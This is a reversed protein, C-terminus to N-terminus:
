YLDIIVHKSKNRVTELKIIKELCIFPTLINLVKIHNILAVLNKIWCYNNLSLAYHRACIFVLVFYNLIFRYEITFSRKLYYVSCVLLELAHVLQLLVSINQLIKKGLIFCRLINAVTFVVTIISYDIVFFISKLLHYFM